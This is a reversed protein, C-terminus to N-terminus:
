FGEKGRNGIGNVMEVEFRDFGHDGYAVAGLGQHLDRGLIRKMDFVFVASDLM